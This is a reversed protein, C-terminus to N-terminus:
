EVRFVIPLAYSISVKNANYEAPVLAPLLGVVRLAEKELRPHPGRAKADIINGCKSIVFRVYIRNVGTLGLDNGLGGNFNQSVFKNIKRSTCETFNVSGLSSCEDFHAPVIGEVLIGDDGQGYDESLMIFYDTDGNEKRKESEKKLILFKKQYLVNVKKKRQQGPIMEPLGSIVKEIITNVQLQGGNIKTKDISGSTTIIFQLDLRLAGDIFTEDEELLKELEEDLAKQITQAVCNRRECDQQVDKCDEFIPPVEVAEFSITKIKDFSHITHYIENESGNIFGLNSFVILVLSAVVSSIKNKYIM